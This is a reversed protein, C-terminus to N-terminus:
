FIFPSGRIGPNLITTALVWISGRGAWAAEVFMKRVEGITFASSQLKQEGDPTIITVPTARPIQLTIPDNTIREHLNIPLGNLLISDDPKLTIGAEKLLAFPVREDTHLTIIQDDEMITLTPSTTPRCALLFFSFVLVLGHKLKM